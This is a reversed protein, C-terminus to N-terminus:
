GVAIYIRRRNGPSRRKTDPGASRDQM